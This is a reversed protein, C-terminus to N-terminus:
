VKRVVFIYENQNQAATEVNLGLGFESATRTFLEMMQEVTWVHFHISYKQDLLKQAHSYIEDGVKDEIHEAAELFHQFKMAFSPSHHEQLLHEYSTVERRHDFTYRKDPIALYLVGGPRLKGHMNILTGIPDLCHEMFHNAIIFDLSAAKFKHLKEANDVVDVEALDHGALDPYMQRLTATDYEDVYTVKTGEPLPVARYTAGIEIGQGQIFLHALLSRRDALLQQHARIDAELQGKQLQLVGRDTQLNHLETFTDGFLRNKFAAWKLVGQVGQM